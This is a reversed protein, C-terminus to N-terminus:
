ELARQRFRFHLAENFAQQLGGAPLHRAGIKQTLSLCGEIFAIGGRRQLKEAAAAIRAWPRPM